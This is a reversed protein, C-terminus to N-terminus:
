PLKQAVSSGPTFYKFNPKDSFGQQKAQDALQDLGGTQQALKARLHQNQKELAYTQKKIQELGKGWTAARNSFVMKVVTLSLVLGLSVMLCTKFKKDLKDLKLKESKTM